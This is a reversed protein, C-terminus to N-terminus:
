INMGSAIGYSGVHESGMGESLTDEPGEGMQARMSSSAARGRGTRAAALM